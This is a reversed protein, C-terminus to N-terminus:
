RVRAPSREETRPGNRNATATQEAAAVRELAMLVKAADDLCRLASARDRAARLAQRCAAFEALAAQMAPAHRPSPLSAGPCRIAGRWESVPEAVGKGAQDLRHPLLTNEQWVECRARLLLQMAAIVSRRIEACPTTKEEADPHSDASDGVLILGRAARTRRGFLYDGEVTDIVFEGKYRGGAHLALRNGPVPAGGQYDLRVTLLKGDRSVQVVSGGLVATGMSMEESIRDLENLV